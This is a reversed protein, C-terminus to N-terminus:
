FALVGIPAAKPSSEGKGQWKPKANATFANDGTNPKSGTL